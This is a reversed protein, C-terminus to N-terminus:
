PTFRQGRLDVRVGIEEASAATGQFRDTQKGTDLALHLQRGAEGIEGSCCCRAGQCGPKFGMGFHMLFHGL